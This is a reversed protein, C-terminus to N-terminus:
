AQKELWEITWRSVQDRWEARAFTHNAQEITKSETQNADMLGQWKADAALRDRFEDAVLDRGSLIVLRNGKFAALGNKMREPLPQDSGGGASSGASKIQDGVGSVAGSVSVGGRLLKAWFDRSMLRKLYYHKLMTKAEGEPTRVWPNLLVLGSIRRDGPAYMCA